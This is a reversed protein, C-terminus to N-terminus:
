QFVRIYDVVMQQPFTTAADPSGPWNGGVAVNLIFFYEEHFESLEEPTIDITNFLVDDAYWKIAEEDWEISFVHFKDSFTGSSLSYGPKDCTCVHGNDDWHLTGHVTKERGNGGVMEMIDIEGCKPWNVQDFNAGLMWIAPWIGQGKPLKARIDIRGYKFEQKGKTIIRSSTYDRGGSSEKKATITLFGDRVTTNSGTYNQLENNGWGHGGTEHTWDSTNLSTGDFEDQWVLTYGERTEPSTYGTDDIKRTVTIQKQASIYVASTAFAVVKVTYTGSKSYTYSATGNTSYLPTEGSQEGFSIHYYNANDASADVDIRGSGDESVEVDIILNSPPTAIDDKEDNGCSALLIVPLIFLYYFKM